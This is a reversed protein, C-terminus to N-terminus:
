SLLSNECLRHLLAPMLNKRWHSRHLVWLMLLHSWLTSSMPYHASTPGIWFATAMDASSIMKSLKAIDAGAVGNADLQIIYLTIGENVAKDLTLEILAQNHPDLYDGVFVNLVQATVVREDIHVEPATTSTATTTSTEHDHGDHAFASTPALVIFLCVAALLVRPLLSEKASKSKQEYESLMPNIRSFEEAEARTCDNSSPDINLTTCFAGTVNTVPLPPTPFDVIPLKSLLVDAVCPSRTSKM